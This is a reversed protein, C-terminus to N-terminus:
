YFGSERVQENVQWDMRGDFWGVMRWKVFTCTGPATGLAPSLTIFLVFVKCSHMSKCELLSASM